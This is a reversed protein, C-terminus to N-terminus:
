SYILSCVRFVGFGVGSTRSAISRHSFSTAAMATPEQRPMMAAPIIQFASIRRSICSTGNGYLVVVVDVVSSGDQDNGDGVGYIFFFFFARMPANTQANANPPAPTARPSGGGGGAGTRHLSMGPVNPVLWMQWNGSPLTVFQM